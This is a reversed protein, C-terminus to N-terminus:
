RGPLITKEGDSKNRSAMLPRESRQHTVSNITVDLSSTDMETQSVRDAPGTRTLKEINERTLPPPCADTTTDQVATALETSPRLLKTPTTASAFLQQDRLQMAKEESRLRDMSRSEPTEASRAFVTDNQFNLINLKNALADSASTTLDEKQESHPVVNAASEVTDSLLSSQRIPRPKLSQTITINPGLGAKRKKEVAWKLLMQELTKGKVPKALYDNMGANECKERDGQIASATMAVIPTNQIQQDAVFPECHRITYTAKYGDMVPMQVDMLIVDPRPHDPTEPKSLYDLAEQGNWVATVSFKLRKITKLAIQQNIPNDTHSYTKLILLELRFHQGEVVLVHTNQREEDSLALPLDLQAPSARRSEASPHRIVAPKAPSGPHAGGYDSMSLESQLRHPIPGMDLPPSDGSLYTAKNFPIWFSARTGIGLTSELSIEGHM